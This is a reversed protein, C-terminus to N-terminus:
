TSIQRVVRFGNYYYHVNQPNYHRNSSRLLSAYSGWDGGRLVKKDSTGSAVPNKESMWQYYDPYYVDYCWEWVNGALDYLGYPNPRYSGAKKLTLPGIWEQGYNALRPSPVDNGWPYTLNQGGKAAREWEAETPLRYTGQPVNEYECLWRCFAVADEWSVNTVPFDMLEDPVHGQTWLTYPSSEGFVNIPASYGSNKVFEQYQRNTVEYVGMYFPDLVIEKGPNEDEDGERGSGGITFRGGPILRMALGLQQSAVGLPKQSSPDKAVDQVRVDQMLDPDLPQSQGYLSRYREIGWYSIGGMVLFLVMLGVLAGLWAKIKDTLTLSEKTFALVKSEVRLKKVSSREAELDSLLGNISQYRDNVDAELSKRIIQALKQTIMREKSILIKFHGMPVQGYLMEFLIVGVSFIDAREDVDGADMTQEPAMYYATGMSSTTKTISQLKINKAIGFDMIKVSGTKSLMINDPKIDRHITHRHAADLGRCMQIVIDLVEDIDAVKAKEKIWRRLTIGEIYEMLIYPCNEFEGFSITRALNIHMVESTIRAENQFRIMLDKQSALNPNLVKLARIEGLNVDYVKYVEGMGGRGLMKEIRYRDAFIFGESFRGQQNPAASSKSATPGSHTPSDKTYAKFQPKKRAFSIHTIEKNHSTQGSGSPDTDRLQNDSPSSSFTQGCNVCFRNQEHNYAGCKSCYVNSGQIQFVNEM